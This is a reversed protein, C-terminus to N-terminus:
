NEGGKSRTVPAEMVGNQTVEYDVDAFKEIDARYKMTAFGVVELKENKCIFICSIGDDTLDRSYAFSWTYKGEGVYWPVRHMSNTKYFYEDVQSLLKKSNVEDSNTLYTQYQGVVKAKKIMDIISEFNAKAIDANASKSTGVLKAHLESIQKDQLSLTESLEGSSKFYNSVTFINAFIIFLIFLIFAVEKFNIKKM